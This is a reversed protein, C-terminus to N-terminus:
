KVGKLVELLSISKDPHLIVKELAAPILVTEGKIFSVTQGDNYEITGSGEVCIYIVFSDLLTYDKKQPQDLSIINTTFHECSVVKNTENLESNYPTKYQDYYNFDIADLALETHLERTKGHEDKRGYDYIRYTIDSTEQIETLLIGKGLAHVRGAPLHIVDGKEVKEVNLIDMLKMQQLHELYKKKDVEQNFGTILEADKETDVIYWMETKGYAKHRKKAMEDDPHVQISLDDGSHIFKILLPFELGFKKYVEEGVIEAMYIEVLEQLSNGALFGNSVISINDQVASIEWSEGCKDSANKKNLINRLKDGGWIKDKLIPEFKLPYLAEM